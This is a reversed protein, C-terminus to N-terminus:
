FVDLASAAWSKAGATDAASAPSAVQRGADIGVSNSVNSVNGNTLSGIGGGSSGTAAGASSDNAPLLANQGTVTVIERLKCNFRLASERTKPITVSEIVMQDYYKLQSVVIMPVRAKWMQELLAFSTMSRGNGLYVGDRFLPTDSIFGSITLSRPELRVHDSILSGGEIPWDTVQASMEHSEEVTVDVTLLGIRTPVGAAGALSKFLLTLLSM